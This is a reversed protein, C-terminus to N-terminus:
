GYKQAVQQLDPGAKELDEPVMVPHAQVTAGLGLFLPESLAPMQSADDMNVVLYGGRAGEIDGFYAAEPKLDELITQITQPLTGNKIMENGKEPTSRFTLMFRM